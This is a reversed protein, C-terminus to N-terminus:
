YRTTSTGGSRRMVFLTGFVIAVFLAVLIVSNALGVAILRDAIVSLAGLILSSAITAILVIRTLRITEERTPWTVKKLENNVETLYSAFNIFPRTLANGGETVKEKQRRGPTARGKSDIMELETEENVSKRKRDKKEVTTDAAM